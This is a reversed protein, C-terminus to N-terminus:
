ISTTASRGARRWRIISNSGTPFHVTTSPPWSCVRHGGAERVDAGGLPQRRRHHRPATSVERPRRATRRPHQHDAAQADNRPRGGGRLLGGAAHDPVARRPAREGSGVKGAGTIIQRTVFFTTLASVIDGFPIARPVLYNEHAGYSNGKGDSNNKYIGLVEGERCCNRRRPPRGLWSWSAPRTTCRRRRSPGLVGPLLVRSPRSRCLSPRRQDAGHQRRRVRLRRSGGSEFGFGRADRGPSEEEFSWQM